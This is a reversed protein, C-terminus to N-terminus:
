IQPLAFGALEYASQIRVFGRHYLGQTDKKLDCGYMTQVGMGNLAGYDGMEKIPRNKVNGYAKGGANKGFIYTDTVPVIRNNVQVILSGTPFTVKNYTADYTWLTTGSGGFGDDKITTYAVGTTSSHLRAAVTITFGNSNIGTGVYSYLNWKGDAPDLVVFYYTASDSGVSLTQGFRKDAGYFLEFPKYLTNQTSLTAQTIGGGYLTFATTASTIADGLVAQPMISSMISGPTDMAKIEWAKLVTGRWTPLDGTWYPNSTGDVHAHQLASTFQSDQWLSEFAQSAGLAILKSFDMGGTSKGISAPEIGNTVALSIAKGLTQTDLTDDYRLTDLTTRSGPRVTNRASARMRFRVLMDEQEIRGVLDGLLEPYTEKWSAGTSASIRVIDNWAVAVRLTDLTVSWTNHNLAEEYNVLTETGRRGAHGLVAGVNFNVTEMRGKTLDNKIVFPKGEGAAGQLQGLINSNSAGVELMADFAEAILKSSPTTYQARTQVLPLVTDGAAM